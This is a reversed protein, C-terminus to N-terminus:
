VWIPDEDWSPNFGLATIDVNKYIDFLYVLRHRFHHGPNAVDLLYKMCCSYIYLKQMESDSPNRKIRKAPPSKLLSPKASFM